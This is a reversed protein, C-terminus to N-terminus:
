EGSRSYGAPQVSEYRDRAALRLEEQIAFDADEWHANIMVYLDNDNQSQGRLCYALTRSEPSFDVPGDVGYWHM